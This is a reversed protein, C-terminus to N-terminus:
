RGGGGAAEQRSVAVQAPLEELEPAATRFATAPTLVESAQPGSAAFAAALRSAEDGRARYHLYRQTTKLDAHGMWEQLERGSLAANAAVTGFTHRLEHFTLRKVKARTVAADYRRRLASGDLPGGAEGVFVFCDRETFLTRQELRALAQAVEQSMPVSRMKRGKPTVLGDEFDYSHEVRLVQGAFDVDRWRLAVLEGRRLGTFAATLFLAGDQESDAARVIAHVEESSYADRVRGEDYKVVIPEVAAVPNTPHRYARRAREFVAHLIATLKAANRRSMGKALAEGRWREITAPTIKALPVDRLWGPEEETGIFHTRLASRYDRRTSAKWPGRSGGENEGHRLWEAAAVGFTVKAPPEYKERERRPWVYRAAFLEAQEESPFSRWQQKGSHRWSVIWLEGRRRVNTRRRAM